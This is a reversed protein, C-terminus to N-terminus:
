APRRAIAVRPIGQLDDAFSLEDWGALLATLADRQGHGIELLLWGGPSLAQAAQPILHRYIELGTPGAFLASHPEFDRVQAELVEDNAIYPPNSVVADFTEGRVADLLDSVLFRTRGLVHHFQANYQAMALAPQSLDLATVQAQPLLHALTVAIAGSGTGIDAIRVPQNLPLRAIAAEILHETEPRPILVDPSVRFALGYFEQQGLIYQIPEGSIRRILRAEYRQIQAASLDDDWHTLIWARDRGLVAMLLLEADRRATPLHALRAAAEDIAARLTM